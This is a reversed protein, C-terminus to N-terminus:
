CLRECTLGAASLSRRHWPQAKYEGGDPSTLVLLGRIEGLESPQFRVQCLCLALFLKALAQSQLGRELKCGPQTSLPKTARRDLQKSKSRRSVSVGFAPTRQVSACAESLMVMVRSMVLETEKIEPSFDSSASKQGLTSVTLQPTAPDKIESVEWAEQRAASMRFRNQVNM